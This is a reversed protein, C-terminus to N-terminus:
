LARTKDRCRLEGARQRRSRDLVTRANPHGDADLPDLIVVIDHFDMELVVRRHGGPVNDDGGSAPRSLDVDGAYRRQRDPGHSSLQQLKDHSPGASRRM